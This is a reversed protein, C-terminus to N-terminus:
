KLKLFELEYSVVVGNSMFLLWDQNWVEVVIQAPTPKSDSVSVPVTSDKWM